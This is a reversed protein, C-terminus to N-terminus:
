APAGAKSEHSSCVILLAVGLIMALLGIGASVTGSPIEGVYPALDEGDALTSGVMLVLTAAAEIIVGIVVLATALWRLRRPSRARWILALPYPTAVIATVLWFRVFGPASPDEPLAAVLPLLAGWLHLLRFPIAFAAVAAVLTILFRGLTLLAVPRRRPRTLSTAAKKVADVRAGLGERQLLDGLHEARKGADSVSLGLPVGLITRAEADSLDVRTKVLPIRDLPSSFGGKVVPATDFESAM